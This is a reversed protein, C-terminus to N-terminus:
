RKFSFVLIHRQYTLAKSQSDFSNMVSYAQPPKAGHVTQLCVTTELKHLYTDPEQIVNM